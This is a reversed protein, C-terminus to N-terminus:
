TSSSLNNLVRATKAERLARSNCYIKLSYIGDVEVAVGRLLVFESLGAPIDQYSKKRYGWDYTYGLRTWPFLSKLDTNDYNQVKTEDYWKRWDSNIKKPIIEFEKGGAIVVDPVCQGDYIENDLCARVIDAPNVWLEVIYSNSSWPPLGLLQKIRLALVEDNDWAKNQCFNRLESVVSVWADRGLTFNKAFRTAFAFGEWETITANYINGYTVVREPVFTAVKIFGDARRELSNNWPTIEILDHKIEWPEIVRADKVANSYLEALYADRLAVVGAAPAPTAVERPAAAERVAAFSVCWLGFVLTVSLFINKSNMAGWYFINLYLNVLITAFFCANPGQLM